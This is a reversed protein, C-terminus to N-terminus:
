KCLRLTGLPKRLENKTNEYPDYKNVIAILKAINWDYSDRWKIRIFTFAVCLQLSHVCTQQKDPHQKM